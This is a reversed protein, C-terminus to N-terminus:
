CILKGPRIPKVIKAGSIPPKTTAIPKTNEENSVPPDEQRRSMIRQNNQPTQPMFQSTDVDMPEDM